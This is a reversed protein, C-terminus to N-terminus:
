FPLSMRNKYLLFFYGALFCYLGLKRILTTSEVRDPQDKIEVIGERYAPFSNLAIAALFLIGTQYPIAMKASFAMGAASGLNIIVGFHYKNYTFDSRFSHRKRGYLGMSVGVVASSIFLSSWLLSSNLFKVPQKM